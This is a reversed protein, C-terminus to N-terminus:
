KFKIPCIYIFDLRNFNREASIKCLPKALHASVSLYARQTKTFFNLDGCNEIKDNRTHYYPYSGGYNCIGENDTIGMIAPYGRKWFSYHDSYYNEPCYILLTPVIDEYLSYVDVFLNALEESNDNYSLDLNEEEPKGDGEWGIMDANLVAIINEGQSYAKAAYYTSGILGQEEGTVLIFKITYSFRYNTLVKALNIVMSSGSGNDNAGPAPPNKPMDDIHAILILVKEPELLGNLTGVVNPAYTSSYDQLEVELGLEQFINYAREVSSFCSPNTSYRSDAYNVLEYFESITLDEDFNNLMDEVFFNKEIEIKEFEKYPKLNELSLKQIWLNKNKLCNSNEEMEILYLNEEKFLIKGCSNLDIGKIKPTVFFLNKKFDGLKKFNYSKIESFNDNLVLFGNRTEAILNLGLSLIKNREYKEKKEVFFIESPFLLKSFFLFIMIKIYKKM